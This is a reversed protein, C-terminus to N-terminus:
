LRTRTPPWRLPQDRGPAISSLGTVSLVIALLVIWPRRLRVTM